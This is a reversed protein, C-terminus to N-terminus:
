EIIFLIFLLENMCCYLYTEFYNNQNFFGSLFLLYQRIENVYFELFRLSDLLKYTSYMFFKLDIPFLCIICYFFPLVSLVYIMWDKCLSFFLFHEFSWYIYLFTNFMM